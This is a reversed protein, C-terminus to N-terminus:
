CKVSQRIYMMLDMQDNLAAQIETENKLMLEGKILENMTKEERTLVNTAAFLTGMCAMIMLFALVVTLRKLMLYCV